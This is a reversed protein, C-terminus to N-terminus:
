KLFYINQIWPVSVGSIKLVIIKIHSYKTLNVYVCNIVLHVLLYYFFYYIDKLCSHVGKYFKHPHIDLLSFNLKAKKEQCYGHRSIINLKADSIHLAIHIKQFEIMSLKKLTLVFFHLQFSCKFSIYKENLTSAFIVKKM